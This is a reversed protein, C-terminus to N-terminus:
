HNQPGVIEPPKTTAHASDGPNWGPSAVGLSYQEQEASTGDGFGLLVVILCAILALAFWYFPDPDPFFSKLGKFCARVCAPTDDDEADSDPEEKEEEMPQGPLAGAHSGEGMRVSALRSGLHRFASASAHLNFSALRAHREVGEEAFLYPLCCVSPCRSGARLPPRQPMQQTPQSAARMKRPAGPHAKTALPRRLLASWRSPLPLDHSFLLPLGRGDDFPTKEPFLVSGGPRLSRGTRIPASALKGGFSPSRVGTRLLSPRTPLSGALLPLRPSVPSACFLYSLLVSVSQCFLLCTFAVSSSFLFPSLSWARVFADVRTQEGPSCSCPSRPVSPFVLLFCNPQQPYLPFRRLAIWTSFDRRIWTTKHVASAAALEERDVLWSFCAVAPVPPVRSGDRDRVHIANSPDRIVSSYNCVSRVSRLASLDVKSNLADVQMRVYVNSKVRIVAADALTQLPRFDKQYPEEFHVSFRSGHSFFAFADKQLALRRVVRLMYRTLLQIPAFIPLRRFLAYPGLLSEDSRSVWRLPLAHLSTVICVPFLMSLVGYDVFSSCVFQVLCLPLGFGAFYLWHEEFYKVRSRMEGVFLIRREQRNERNAMRGDAETKLPRSGERDQVQVRSNQDERTPFAPFVPAAAPATCCSCAPSVGWVSSVGRRVPEARPQWPFTEPGNPTAGEALGRRSPLALSSVDRGQNEEKNERMHKAETKTAFLAALRQIRMKMQPSLARRADHKTSKLYRQQSKIWANVRRAFAEEAEEGGESGSPWAGTATRGRGRGMCGVSHAGGDGLTETDGCLAQHSASPSPRCPPDHSSFPSLSSFSSFYLADNEGITLGLLRRGSISAGPAHRDRSSSALFCSAQQCPRRRPGGRTSCRCNEPLSRLGLEERAIQPGLCGEGGDDGESWTDVHEASACSFSTYPLYDHWDFCYFAFLWSLNILSLPPGIFPILPLLVSAGIWWVYHLLLRLAFECPSVGGSSPGGVAPPCPSSSFFSASYFASPSVPPVASSAHKEAPSFWEYVPAFFGFLSPFGDEDDSDKRGEWPHPPSSLRWKGRFFSSWAFTRSGRRVVARTLKGLRSAGNGGTDTHRERAELASQEGVFDTPEDKGLELPVAGQTEQWRGRQDGSRVWLTWLRACFSGSPREKWTTPLASSVSSSAQDRPRRKLQLSSCFSSVGHGGTGETRRGECAEERRMPPADGERTDGAGRTHFEFRDGPSAFRFVCSAEPCSHSANPEASSVRRSPGNMGSLQNTRERSSTEEDQLLLAAATDAIDRYWLSNFLSNCCYLPYLVFFRFLSWLACEILPVLWAVTAAGPRVAQLGLPSVGVGPTARETAVPGTPDYDSGLSPFFSVLAVAFPSFVDLSLLPLAPPVDAAQASAALTPPLPPSGQKEAATYTSFLSVLTAIFCILFSSVAAIVPMLIHTFFQILGLFLGGNLLLCSISKQCIVPSRFCYVLFRHVSLCDLVGRLYVALGARVISVCLWVCAFVSALMAKVSAFCSGRTEIPSVCHHGQLRPDLGSTRLTKHAASPLSRYSSFPHVSAAMGETYLQRSHLSASAGYPRSRSSGTGHPETCVCTVKSIGADLNRSIKASLGADDHASSSPPSACHSTRRCQSREVLGSGNQVLQQTRARAELAFGSDRQTGQSTRIGRFYAGPPVPSSAFRCDSRGSVLDTGATRDMLQEAGRSPSQWSSCRHIDTQCLAKEGCYSQFFSAHLHPDTEDDGSVGTHHFGPPLGPYKGQSLFLAPTACPQRSPGVCHRHDPSDAKFDHNKQKGDRSKVNDVGARVYGPSFANSVAVSSEPPLSCAGLGRSPVEFFASEYRLM